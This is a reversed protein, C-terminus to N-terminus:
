RTRRAWAIASTVTLLVIAPAPNGGLVALHAVIAGIMTLALAAAAFSALSPVFLLVASVVEIGGTFYRFWQGLGIIDFQQVMMPAGTLKSSGAFLFMAAAAIQATWLVATAARSRSRPATRAPAPAIPWRTSHSTLTTM